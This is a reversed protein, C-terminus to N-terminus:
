ALRKGAAVRGPNKKGSKDKVTIRPEESPVQSSSTEVQTVEQGPVEETM